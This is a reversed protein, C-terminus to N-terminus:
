IEGSYRCKHRRKREYLVKNGSSTADVSIDLQRVRYGQGVPGHQVALILEFAETVERGTKSKLLSSWARKSFVDICNLLYRYGDNYSSLNFLDALDIQYLDGIGKSYTRRRIFRRPIPKHLTYAGQSKLYDVVDKRRKNSHRRLRDIGGFSGPSRVDHYVVDM